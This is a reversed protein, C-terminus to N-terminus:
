NYENNNLKNVIKYGDEVWKNNLSKFEIREVYNIHEYLITLRPKTLISTIGVYLNDDNNVKFFDDIISITVNVDLNNFLLIEKTKYKNM